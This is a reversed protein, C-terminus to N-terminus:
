MYPNSCMIVINKLKNLSVTDTVDISFGLINPKGSIPNVFPIKHTKFVFANGNPLTFNQEPLEVGKKGFLVEEDSKRILIMEKEDKVFHSDDKGIIEAEPLGFLTSELTNIIIYRGLEDKIFVPFPMSEIIIKLFLYTKEHSDEPLQQYHEEPQSLITSEKYDKLIDKAKTIDGSIVSEIIYTLYNLKNELFSVKNKYDEIIKSDSESM